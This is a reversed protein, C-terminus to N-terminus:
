NVLVTATTVGRRQVLGYLKAANDPHLRVCGHSVPRGLRKTEYTGHIAHGKRTFFISHPMPADDWEESFHDRELRFATYRGKPTAYGACGTSVPWTWRTAGDVAVTMRQGATDISILIEAQALTAAGALAAVALLGALLCRMSMARGLKMRARAVVGSREM